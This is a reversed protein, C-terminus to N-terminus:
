AVGKTPSPLFQRAHHFVGFLVVGVGVVGIGIGVYLPWNIGGAVPKPTIVSGVTNALAVAKGVATSVAGPQIITAAFDSAAPMQSAASATQLAAWVAPSANGDVTDLNQDAQFMLVAGQTDLGFNGDAGSSGIDYGLNSLDQQLIKVAPGSSGYTLTPFSSTQNTFDTGADAYRM